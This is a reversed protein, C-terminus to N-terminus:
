LRIKFQQLRKRLEKPSTFQIVNFGLKQATAINKIYDDIFLCEKPKSRLKKLIDLFIGKNPKSLRVEYSYVVHHFLQRYDFTLECYEVWEKVHNSLLGLKYGNLRLKEIIKRMGRIQKFNKRAANKLENISITWSNRKVVLQWYEDETIEGLFLQDLEAFLLDDDTIKNGLIKELYKGSGSVGRLYVDSLDFIITNIM